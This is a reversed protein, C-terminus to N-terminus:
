ISNNSISSNLWKITSIFSQYKISNDSSNTNSYKSGNLQVFM